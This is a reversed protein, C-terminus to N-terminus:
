VSLQCDRRGSRAGPDAGVAATLVLDAVEIPQAGAPLRVGLLLPGGIRFCLRAAIPEADMGTM